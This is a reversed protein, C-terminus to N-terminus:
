VPERVQFVFPVEKEPHGRPVRQNTVVPTAGAQGLPICDFDREISPDIVECADDVAKRELAENQQAYRL